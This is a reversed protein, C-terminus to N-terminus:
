AELKEFIKCKKNRCEKYDEKYCLHKGNLEVWYPCAKCVKWEDDTLIVLTITQGKKM